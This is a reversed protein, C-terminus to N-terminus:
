GCKSPVCPVPLPLLGRRSCAPRTELAINSDYDLGEVARDEDEVGGVCGIITSPINKDLLYKRLRLCDDSVDKLEPLAERVHAKLERLPLKKQVVIAVERIKYFLTLTVSNRKRRAEEQEQRDVDLRREMADKLAAPVASDAVKSRNLMADRKRYMLMYATTLHLFCTACRMLFCLRAHGCVCGFVSGQSETAPASAGITPSTTCEGTRCAAAQLVLRANEQGLRVNEQKLQSIEQTLRSNVRTVEATIAEQEAMRQALQLTQEDERQDLVPSPAPVAALAFAEALQKATPRDRPLKAFCRGLVDAAPAGEPVTPVRFQMAVAMMIQQMPMGEWPMKGTLMEVIVCGLAWVDTHPGIGGEAQDNLAEPAM